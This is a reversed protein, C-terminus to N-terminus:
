SISLKALQDCIYKYDENNVFKSRYEKEYSIEEMGIDSSEEYWTVKPDRYVHKNKLKIDCGPGPFINDNGHLIGISKLHNTSRGFVTEPIDQITVLKVNNNNCQNNNYNEDM